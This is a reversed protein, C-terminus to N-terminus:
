AAATPAPASADNAAFASATESRLRLMSTLDHGGNRCARCTQRSSHVEVDCDCTTCSCRHARAFPLHSQNTSM